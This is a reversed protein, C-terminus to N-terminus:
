PTARRMHPLHRNPDSRLTRMSSCTSGELLDCLANYVHDGGAAATSRWTDAANPHNRLVIASVGIVSWPEDRVESLQLETGESLSLAGFDVGPSFVRCDPSLLLDDGNALHTGDAERLVWSVPGDVAPMTGDCQLEHSATLDALIYPASDMMRESLRAITLEGHSSFGLESLKTDASESDSSMTLLAEMQGEFVNIRETASRLSGWGGNTRGVVWTSDSGLGLIHDFAQPNVSYEVEHRAATRGIRTEVVIGDGDREDAYGDGDLDRYNRADAYQVRMAQRGQVYGQDLAGPAMALGVRDSLALHDVRYRICGLAGCGPAFEGSIWASTPRHGSLWDRQQKLLGLWAALGLRPNDVPIWVSRSAFNLEAAHSDALALRQVLRGAILNALDDGRSRSPEAEILRDTVQGHVNLMRGEDDVTPILVSDDVVHTDSAAGTLWVATAGPFRAEIAQRVRGPYDASLRNGITQLAPAGSWGVFLILPTSDDMRELSILRITGDVTGPLHSERVLPQAQERWHRIQDLTPRLEPQNGTDAGSPMDAELPVREGDVPLEDIASRVQIVQRMEAARRVAVATRRVLSRWWRDDLGSQLPLDMFTAANLMGSREARESRAWSPGSLGIADPASRNGSTHIVFHEQSLGLRQSLQNSLREIGGRDLGYLDFSLVVVLADDRTLVVVRGLPPNTEDVGHAPRDQGPGGLWIADFVGDGDLDDFGDQCPDSPKPDNLQGDFVGLRNDPCDPGARDHWSEFQTPVLEFSAAGARTMGDYLPRVLDGTVPEVCYADPGCWGPEDCEEDRTCPSREPANQGSDDLALGADDHTEPPQSPSENPAGLDAFVAISDAPLQECGLVISSIIIGLISLHLRRM